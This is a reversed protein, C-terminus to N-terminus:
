IRNAYCARIMYELYKGYEIGNTYTTRYVQMLMSIRGCLVTVPLCFFIGLWGKMRKKWNNLTSVPNSWMQVKHYQFSSLYLKYEEIYIRLYVYLISPLPIM